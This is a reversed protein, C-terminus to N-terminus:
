EPSNPKVVYVRVGAPASVKPEEGRRAEVSILGEAVPFTIRAWELDLLHPSLTYEHPKDLSQSFGFIGGLVAMVPPTGNAGHCLSLGYPRRYFVIQEQPTGRPSFNEPFRTHGQRLWDGFVRDLFTFCERVYGAKTYALVEYGKDYSIDEYYYPICPLIRSFLAEYHKEPYLDTIVAWYQAHPSIRTDLSGDANYGNVFALQAPDWFHKVIADKVKGAAERYHAALAQDGWKECFFATIRFNEYVMMQAYSATGMSEPGNKRAWGPTFGSTPRSAVLFGKSDLAQEYLAAQALIRDKFMDATSLDGYRLYDHKLGILAHLPYDPIGWDSQQPHPPMLAVSIGNRSVQRDGFVYDGGIASVVADMAWPLYDRKVGDLYFNHLSTHLTKVGTEFLANIAPDSCEFHMKREVPWMKTHFRIDSVQIEGEAAIRLYRLAREPLKVTRRRNVPVEPLPYQELLADNGAMVEDLSEGVYCQVSGNGAAQFWVDGVEIEVFDALIDGNELTKVSAPRLIVVQEQEADPYRGEVVFRGDTEPRVWVQGDLSAEWCSIDKGKLFIAPLHSGDTVVKLFTHAGEQWRTVTGTSSYQLSAAESSSLPARFTVEAQPVFFKGPYGVNVCRETSKERQQEQLYSALQGPYWIYSNGEQAFVKGPFALMWLLASAVLFRSLKM